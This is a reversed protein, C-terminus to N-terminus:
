GLCAVPYNAYVWGVGGDAASVRFQGGSSHPDRTWYYSSVWQSGPYTTSDTLGWENFVGGGIARTYYNNVFSWNTPATIRPSNTLQERTPIKNAGGCASVASAYNIYISGKPVFWKTPDITFTYPHPQGTHDTATITVSGSPKSNLTVKGSSNVTVASGGNSSFTWDSPSGTVVLDFSAKPFGTTPFKTSASAKFGGDTVSVIGSSDVSNTIVVFDSSYGGGNDTDVASGSIGNWFWIGSNIKGYWSNQPKVKMSNPRAYCIGSTTKIQYSQELGSTDSDRPKGYESHSQAVLNIKLTLTPTLGSGCGIMKTEDTIETGNSDYWKHSVAGVVTFAPSAPADGDADYYDTAITFDNATFNQVKFDELRLSPEFVKPTGPEIKDKDTNSGGLVPNAESYSINGVKFGLKKAGSQGTFGPRSGQITNASTASLAGYSSPVIM